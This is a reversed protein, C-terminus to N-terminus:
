AGLRDCLEGFSGVVLTPRPGFSPWEGGEERRLHVGQMGANM